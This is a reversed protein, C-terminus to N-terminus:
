LGGRPLESYHLSGGQYYASIIRQTELRDAPASKLLRKVQIATAYADFQHAAEPRRFVSRLVGLNVQGILFKRPLLLVHSWVCGPRPMEPAAWTKVFAFTGSDKLTFGSVYSEGRGLRANSALDSRTALEYADNSSLQVSAALRRHGDSYGFLAQDITLTQSPKTM